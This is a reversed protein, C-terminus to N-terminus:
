IYLIYICWFMVFIAAVIMIMLIILIMRRAYAIMHMTSAPESGRGGVKRENDNHIDNNGPNRNNNNQLSVEKVEFFM